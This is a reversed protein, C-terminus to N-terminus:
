CRGILNACKRETRNTIYATLLALTGGIITTVTHSTQWKFSTDPEPPAKPGRWFNLEVQAKTIGCDLRDKRAQTATWTGDPNQTMPPASPCNYQTFLDITIGADAIPTDQAYCPLTLLLLVLTYKLM